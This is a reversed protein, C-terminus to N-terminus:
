RGDDLGSESVGGRMSLAVNRLASIDEVPNGDVLILDAAYGPRIEGIRGAMGIARAADITAARVALLASAGSEVMLAAENPASAHPTGPAGADTGVALPVGRAAALGCARLAAARVQTAKRATETTASQYIGDFVCLTPVLFVGEAKMRDATEEDLLAGHEISDVGEDLLMNIVPPAYAHAAVLCGAHHAEEVAARVELRTLQPNEPREHESYVGGSAILKIVRAGDKIEQRTAARVADPGDAERCLSWGHGGTMAIARGAPIVRPGFIEGANIAEALPVSLGGPAGLDRVTTVGDRLQCLAHRIGRLVSREPRERAIVEEPRDSADWLLHAHTDILGPLLTAGPRYTDAAVEQDVGTRVQAIAGMDDVDVLVDSVLETGDFMQDARIRVHKRM